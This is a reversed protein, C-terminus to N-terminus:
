MELTRRHSCDHQIEFHHVCFQACTSRLNACNRHRLHACSALFRRANKELVESATNRLRSSEPSSQFASPKHRAGFSRRSEDLSRRNGGFIVAKSLSIEHCFAGRRESFAECRTCRADFPQQHRKQVAFTRRHGCDHQFEFNQVCFRACTSRRNACNRHRLHASTALFRRASM